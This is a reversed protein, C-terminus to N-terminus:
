ITSLLERPWIVTYSHNYHTCVALYLQTTSFCQTLVTCLIKYIKSNLTRIRSMIKLAGKKGNKEERDSTLKRKKNTQQQTKGWDVLTELLRVFSHTLLPLNFARRENTRSDISLLRFLRALLRESKKEEEGEEDQQFITGKEKERKQSDHPLPPLLPLHFIPSFTNSSSQGCLQIM